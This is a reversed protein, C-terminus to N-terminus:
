KAKELKTVKLKIMKSLFIEINNEGIKEKTTVIIKLNDYHKKMNNLFDYTAEHGTIYKDNTRTRYGGILIIPIFYKADPNKSCMCPKNEFSYNLEIFQIPIDNVVNQMKGNLEGQIKIANIKSLVSKNELMFYLNNIEYDDNPFKFIINGDCQSKELKIYELFYDSMNIIKLVFFHKIQPM